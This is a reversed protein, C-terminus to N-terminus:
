RDPDLSEDPGAEGPLPRSTRREGERLGGRRKRRRRRARRRREEEEEEDDDGRISSVTRRVSDVGGRVADVTGRVRSTLGRLEDAIMRADHVAATIDTSTTKVLRTLEDLARRLALLAFIGVTLLALVLLSVLSQGVTALTDLWTREIVVRTADAEALQRLLAYAEPVSMDM